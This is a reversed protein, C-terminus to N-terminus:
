ELAAGAERRKRGTVMARVLNEHHARSAIIVGAVHLLVLFLTLNAAVEHLEEWFEEAEENGYAHDDDDAVAPSILTPGSVGIETLGALPGANEEIAYLKLGSYTTVLLCALLAVIMAGGAPNHGLYRKARNKGIDGLYRITAGPRRVFDRFRAHRTGIFGWAIRVLVVAAVVYGAWVHQTLFEDETFYAILFASVLTWHGIRVLPDWVRVQENGQQM